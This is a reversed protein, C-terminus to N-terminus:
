YRFEVAARLKAFDVWETKVEHDKHMILCLTRSYKRLLRLPFNFYDIKSVPQAEFQDMSPM